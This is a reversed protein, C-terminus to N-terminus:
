SNPVLGILVITLVFLRLQISCFQNCFLLISRMSEKCGRILSVWYGSSGRAIILVGVGEVGSVSEGTFFCAYVRMMAVAYRLLSQISTGVM